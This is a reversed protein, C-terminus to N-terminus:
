VEMAPKIEAWLLSQIISDNKISPFGSLWDSIQPRWDIFSHSSNILYDISKLDELVLISGLHWWKAAQRHTKLRVMLKRSMTYNETVKDPSRKHFLSSNHLFYVGKMESYNLGTSILHKNLIGSYVANPLNSLNCQKTATITKQSTRQSTETNGPQCVGSHEGDLVSVKPVKVEWWTKRFEGIAKRTVCSVIEERAAEKLTQEFTAMWESRGCLGQVPVSKM